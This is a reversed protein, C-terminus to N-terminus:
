EWYISFYFINFYIYIYLDVFLIIGYIIPFFAMNWVVLCINNAFGQKAGLDVKAFRGPSRVHGLRAPLSIVVKGINKARQLFQMANVGSCLRSGCRPALVSFPHFLPFCCRWPFWAGFFTTSCKAHKWKKSFRITPIRIRYNPPAHPQSSPHQGPVMRSARSSTCTSPRCAAQLALSFQHGQAQYLVREM